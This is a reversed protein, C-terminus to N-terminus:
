RVTAREDNHRESFPHSRRFNKQTTSEDTWKLWKVEGDVKFSRRKFKSDLSQKSISGQNWIYENESSPKSQCIVTSAACLVSSHLLKGKCPKKSIPWSPKKPWNPHAHAHLHRHPSYTHTHLRQTLTHLFSHIHKHIHTTPTYTLPPHPFTHTHTPPTYIYLSLIFIIVTTSTGILANYNIDVMNNQTHCQKDKSQM